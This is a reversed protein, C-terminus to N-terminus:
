GKLSLLLERYKVRVEKESLIDSVKDFDVKLGVGENVKDCFDQYDHYNFVKVGEVGGLYDAIRVRDSLLM